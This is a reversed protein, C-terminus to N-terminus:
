AAERAPGQDAEMRLMEVEWADFLGDVIGEFRPVFVAPILLEGLIGGGMTFDFRLRVTSGNPAPIVEWRGGLTEFPHPYDPADTQVRVAYVRGEEWQCVSEIWRGVSDSCERVLGVGAGKVVRSSILNPSYEAYGELDSVVQWATEPRAEITREFTMESRGEGECPVLNRSLRRVGVLQLVAFIAVALAVCSAAMWGHVTLAAPWAAALVMTATVWSLDAM